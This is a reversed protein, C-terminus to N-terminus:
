VEPEVPLNEPAADESVPVLLSGLELYGPLTGRPPIAKLYGGQVMRGLANELLPPSLSLEGALRTISTWVRRTLACARLALALLISLDLPSLSDVARTLERREISLM